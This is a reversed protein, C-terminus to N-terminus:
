KCLWVQCMAWELIVVPLGLKMRWQLLLEEAWLIKLHRTNWKQERSCLKSNQLFKYYAVGLAVRERLDGSQETLRMLPRAQMVNKIFLLQIKIEPTEAGRSPIHSSSKWEKGDRTEATGQIHICTVPLIRLLHELAECSVTLMKLWTDSVSTWVYVGYMKEAWPTRSFMEGWLRWFFLIFIDQSMHILVEGLKYGPPTEPKFLCAATPSIPSCM